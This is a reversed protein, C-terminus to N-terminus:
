KKKGQLEISHENQSIPLHDHYQRLNPTSLKKLRERFSGQTTAVSFVVWAPICIMSSTAILLGLAVGWPPYVYDEYVLPTWTVVSFIWITLSIAPTIIKWCWKFIVLPRYGIMRELDNYLREGGYVWGIAVCEFFAMCLLVMGSASFYDYIQFVYMGGRTVMFLGCLFSITCIFLVFLERNYGRNLFRPFFDSIATVFGEVTVFQSDMGVLLIMFFFLCSWLPSLPMMSVAKPYAIFILGPGKTAVDEIPVGQEVSMYGLVSFILLGGYFSTFSNVCAVILTDRYCNNNFKNYSGLATLSGLGIAYSFFVQTGADVWVQADGLRTINPKIYYVLGETAGKLLLSRVLLITLVVYPFTATFYVVKGSSRVGKWICFYTLIWALLLTGVLPWRLGGMESLGSSIQLVEREWFESVSSTSLYEDTINITTNFDETYDKFETCNPTNWPNQCHSWPLESSFSNFFYFLAWAIIVIYYQNLWFVIVTTAYGIGGGNKYCLYPFRWINGFGVAFGICSLIFDLEKDWRLRDDGASVMDKENTCKDEQDLKEHQM